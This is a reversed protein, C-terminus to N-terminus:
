WHKLPDNKKKSILFFSQQNKGKKIGNVDAELKLVKLWERMFLSLTKKENQINM